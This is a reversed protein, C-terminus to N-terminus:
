EPLCLHEILNVNAVAILKAFEALIQGLSSNRNISVSCDSHIAIHPGEDPYIKFGKNVSAFVVIEGDKNLIDIERGENPDPPPVDIVITGWETVAEDGILFAEGEFVKILENELETDKTIAETCDGSQCTETWEHGRSCYWKTTRINPDDDHFVGNEDYYRNWGMATRTSIGAWVTSKLDKNVCVPCLVRALITPGVPCWHCIEEGECDSADEAWCQCDATRTGGCDIAKQAATQAGLAIAFLILGALYRMTMM